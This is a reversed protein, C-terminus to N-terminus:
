GLHASRHQHPMGLEAGDPVNTSSSQLETWIETKRAGYAPLPEMGMMGKPRSQSNLCSHSQVFGCKRMRHRKFQEADLTSICAYQRKQQCSRHKSTSLITCDPGPAETGM